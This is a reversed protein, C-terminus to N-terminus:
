KIELMSLYTIWSLLHFTVNTLESPVLRDQPILLSVMLQVAACSDEANLIQVLPISLTLM